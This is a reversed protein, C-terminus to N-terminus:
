ADQSSLVSKAFRFGIYAVVLLAAFLLIGALVNIFFATAVGALLCINLAWGLAIDSGDFHGWEWWIINWWLGFAAILRMITLKIGSIGRAELEEKRAPAFDSNDTDLFPDAVIAWTTWNAVLERPTPDAMFM